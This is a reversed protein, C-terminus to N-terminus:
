WWMVKRVVQWYINLVVNGMKVALSMPSDQFEIRGSFLRTIERDTRKRLRQVERRRSWVRRWTSLRCFHLQAAVQQKFFGGAVSQVLLGLDVLLSVPWLLLLTGLRYHTLIIQYRNREMLYYKQISRSFEYKHYVVSAPALVSHFGALRLRWGLDLDDHYMFLTEDFTGVAQLARCRLLVAAGSAYAIEGSPLPQDPMGNGGAYGFGLFHIVNGWSNIKDTDHRLLKSQVSGIKEDPQAVVVAERLFASTVVTDQNLLFAYAFNREMAYRLGVNNAGTFGTNRDLTIVTVQPWHTRVYEASGDSSANDVVLIEWCDTPYDAASLSSLCDPLYQRGNYCAIIVAVRPSM